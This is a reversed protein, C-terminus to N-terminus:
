NVVLKSLLVQNYIALLAEYNASATYKAEFEIRAERGMQEMERPHSWAWDVKAALDGPDSARFTLGTRGDNVLEGMAGLASAVLPLACGFAEVLALPFSEYCESPLVLFRARKMLEIVKNKAMQGLWQISPVETCVAMVEPGCLGEGLIVLPVPTKLRRWGDLLTRGGKEPSLRGVFLAYDGLGQKAGPDPDLYNPKVVIKHGPIGNKALMRHAFETLAIYRDVVGRWTGILEHATIMVGVAASALPDQRYCKHVVGPWPTLKGLCEECLKGDRYLTASPCLLRYNHLTQIVPINLDKCV